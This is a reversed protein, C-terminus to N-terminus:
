NCMSETPDLNLKNCINLLEQRGVYSYSKLLILNNSTAIKNLYQIKRKTYEYSAPWSHLYFMCWNITAKDFTKFIKAYGRFQPMDLKKLDTTNFNFSELGYLLTSNCYTNVLNTIVQESSNCIKNYIANFSQYFKTRAASFDLKLKKGSTMTVGLYKFSSSWSIMENDISVSVCESAFSKGIRMCVSKKPNIKMSLLSLEHQCINIMKQLDCVSASILILDDAYLIIGIQLSGMYCGLGNKNLKDVLCDVYIGYFIPSLVGGQRVWFFIYKLKNHADLEEDSDEEEAIM